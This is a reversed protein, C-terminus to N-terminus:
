IIYLTYWVELTLNTAKGTEKGLVTAADFVFLEIFFFHNAVKTRLLLTRVKLSYM